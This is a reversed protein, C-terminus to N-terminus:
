FRSTMLGAASEISFRRSNVSLEVTKPRVSMESEYYWRRSRNSWRSLTIIILYIILDQM